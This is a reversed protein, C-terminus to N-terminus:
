AQELNSVASTITNRTIHEHPKGEFKTIVNNAAPMGGGMAAADADSIYEILVRNESVNESSFTNGSWYLFSVWDCM